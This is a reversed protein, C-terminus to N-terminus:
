NAKKTAPKKDRADAAEHRRLELWIQKRTWNAPIKSIWTSLEKKLEETSRTDDGCGFMSKDKKAQEIAEYANRAPVFHRNPQYGKEVWAQPFSDGPRFHKNFTFCERICTFESEQKIAM